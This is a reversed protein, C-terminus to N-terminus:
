IKMKVSAVSAFLFKLIEGICTKLMVILQTMYEINLILKKELVELVSTDYLKYYFAIM